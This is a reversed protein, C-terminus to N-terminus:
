APAALLDEALPQIMSYRAQRQSWYNLGSLDDYHQLQSMTTIIDM